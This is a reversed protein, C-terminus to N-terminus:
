TNERQKTIFSSLPTNPIQIFSDNYEFIKVQYVFFITERDQRRKKLKKKYNIASNTSYKM